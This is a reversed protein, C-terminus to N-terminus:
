SEVDINKMDQSIVDQIKTQIDRPTQMNTKIDNMVSVSKNTNSM